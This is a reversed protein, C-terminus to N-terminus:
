CIKFKKLKKFRLNCSIKEFNEIKKGKEVKQVIKLIKIKKFKKSKKINCGGELGHGVDKFDLGEGM